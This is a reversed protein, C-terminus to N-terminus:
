HGEITETCEQRHNSQSPNPEKNGHGSVAKHGCDPGKDRGIEKVQQSQRSLLLPLMDGVRINEFCSATDRIPNCQTAM